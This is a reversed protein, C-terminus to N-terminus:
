RRSTNYENYELLYNIQSINADLVMYKDIKISQFLIPFCSGDLFPSVEKNHQLRFIIKAFSLRHLTFKDLSLDKTAQYASSDKSQSPISLYSLVEMVFFDNEDLYASEVRADNIWFRCDIGNVSFTLSLLDIYEMLFDFVDLHKEKRLINQYIPDFSDLPIPDKSKFILTLPKDELPHTM